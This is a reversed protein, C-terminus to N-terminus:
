LNPLTETEGVDAERGTILGKAMGLLQVVKSDPADWYQVWVSTVAQV